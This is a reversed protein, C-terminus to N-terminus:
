DEILGKRMAVKVLGGMDHVDLKRMINIRHTKVTHASIFLKEAIDNNKLGEALLKLIEKERATLTDFPELAKDKQILDVYGSLLGESIVPSAYRGGRSVRRVSDLVESPDSGKLVYGRAGARFADVAYHHEQHMSLIIVKTEPLEKLILETAEIGDMKPMTIDMLVVDPKLRKIESIAEPGDGAEGVVAIEQNKALIDKLGRRILVHDDAVFVTIKESKKTM